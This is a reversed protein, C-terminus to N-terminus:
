VGMYLFSIDLKCKKSEGNLISFLVESIENLNQMYIYSAVPAMCYPSRLNGTIVIINM